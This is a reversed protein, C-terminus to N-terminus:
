KEKKKQWIGGKLAYYVVGVILLAGISCGILTGYWNASRQNVVSLAITDDTVNKDLEFYHRYYRGDKEVQANSKISKYITDYRISVKLLNYGVGDLILDDQSIMSEVASFIACPDIQITTDTAMYWTDVDQYTSSWISTVGDIKDEENGSFSVIATAQLTKEDFLIDDLYLDREVIDQDSSTNNCAFLCTCLMMCVIITSISIAFRKINM